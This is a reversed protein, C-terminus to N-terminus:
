LQDSVQSPGSLSGMAFALVALPSLTLAGLILVPLFPLALLLITAYPAVQVPFM